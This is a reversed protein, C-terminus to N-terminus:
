ATRRECSAARVARRMEKGSQPSRAPTNDVAKNLTKFMAHYDRIAKRYLAWHRKMELRAIINEYSSYELELDHSLTEHRAALNRTVATIGTVRNRMRAVIDKMHRVDNILNENKDQNLHTSIDCGLNEGLLLHAMFAAKDYEISSM